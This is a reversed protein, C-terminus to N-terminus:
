KKDDKTDRPNRDGVVEIRVPADTPAVEDRRGSSKKGHAETPAPAAHDGNKPNHDMREHKAKPTTTM